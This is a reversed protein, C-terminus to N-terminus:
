LKLRDCHGGGLASLLAAAGQWCVSSVAAQSSPHSLLVPKRLVDM